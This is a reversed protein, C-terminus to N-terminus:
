EEPRDVYIGTVLGEAVAPTGGGSKLSRPDAAVSRQTLASLIASQGVFPSPLLLSHGECQQAASVTVNPHNREIWTTATAEGAM